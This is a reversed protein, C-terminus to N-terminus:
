AMGITEAAVPLQFVGPVHIPPTTGVAASLTVIALPCVTVTVALALQAASAMPFPANFRLVVSDTVAPKVKDTVPLMVITGGMTFLMSLVRFKLTPLMEHAENIVVFEVPALLRHITFMPVPTSVQLALKKIPVLVLLLLSLKVADPTNCIPPLALVMALPCNVGRVPVM